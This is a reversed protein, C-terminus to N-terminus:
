IPLFKMWDNYTETRVEQWPIVPPNFSDRSLAEVILEPMSVRVLRANQDCAGILAETESTKRTLDCYDRNINALYIDRIPADVLRIAYIREALASGRWTVLHLLAPQGCDECHILAQTPGLWDDLVTDLVLKRGQCAWNHECDTM